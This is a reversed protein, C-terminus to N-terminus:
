STSGGSQVPVRFPLAGLAAVGLVAPHRAFLWALGGVVALGVCAAALAPAGRDRVSELQPSNWIEGVLLVPTVIGAGLMAWARGRVTRGLVAGAAV